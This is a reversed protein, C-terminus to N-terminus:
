RLFEHYTFNSITMKWNESNYKSSKYNKWRLLDNECSYLKWVFCINETELIIADWVVNLLWWKTISTGLLGKVTRKSALWTIVFICETCYNPSSLPKTLMISLIGTEHSLTYFKQLWRSIRLSFKNRASISSFSFTTPQWSLCWNPKTRLRLKPVPYEDTFSQLPVPFQCFIWYLAPVNRKQQPLLLNILSISILFVWGIALTHTFLRVSSISLKIMVKKLLFEFVNKPLTSSAALNIFM